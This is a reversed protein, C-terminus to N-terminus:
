TALAPPRRRRRVLAGVLGFGLIMNMWVAPEPVVAVAPTPCTIESSACTISFVADAVATNNALVFNGSGGNTSQYTFALPLDNSTLFEELSLDIGITEDGDMGGRQLFLNLNDPDNAVFGFQLNGFDPAFTGFSYTQGALTVSFGLWDTVGDGGYFGSGDPPFPDTDYSFIGSIIPLNDSPPPPSGIGGQTTLDTGATGTFYGSTDNGQTIIGTFNVTIVAAPAPAALGLM